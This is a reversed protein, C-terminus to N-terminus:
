WTCVEVQASLHSHGKHHKLLQAWCSTAKHCGCSAGGWHCLFHSEADILLRVSARSCSPCPDISIESCSSGVFPVKMIPCRLRLDIALIPGNGATGILAMAALEPETLFIAMTPKNTIPGITM